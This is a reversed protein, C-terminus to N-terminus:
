AAVGTQPVIPNKFLQTMFDALKLTKYATQYSISMATRKKSAHVDYKESNAFTERCEDIHRTLSRVNLYLVRLENAQAKSVNSPEKYSCRNVINSIEAMFPNELGKEIDFDINNLLFQRDYPDFLKGSNKLINGNLHHTDYHYGPIMATCCNLCGLAGKVCKKHCTSYCWICSTRNHSRTSCEKECVTCTLSSPPSSRRFNESTVDSLNLGPFNESYCNQCAWLSTELPDALIEEAEKRSLNNCSYHKFKQCLTCVLLPRNKPIRIDCTECTHKNRM